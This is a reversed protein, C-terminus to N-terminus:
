FDVVLSGIEIGHYCKGGYLIYKAMGKYYKYICNISKPLMDAVATIHSSHLTVPGTFTMWHIYDHLFAWTEKMM